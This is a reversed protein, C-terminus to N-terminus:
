KDGTNSRKKGKRKVSKSLVNLEDWVFPSLDITFPRNGNAKLVLSVERDSPAIM